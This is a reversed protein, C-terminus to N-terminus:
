RASRPNPWRGRDESNPRHSRSYGGSNLFSPYRHADIESIVDILIGNHGLGKQRLIGLFGGQPGLGERLVDALLPGPLLEGDEDLGGLAPVFGQIVDQEVPGGTKSLRGQGPDNGLLHPRADTDGGTGGNLLGPIERGQERVEVLPIDKKHVLDVPQVTGHLFNQVGGHLVVGQVDDHPLPGTGVGDAQIQGVKGEDPGGGPRALEGRRQPVAEAHRQPQLEVGWLLEGSDDGARRPDKVHVNHGVSGILDGTPAPAGGADCVPHEPPDPIVGLHLCVADDRRLHGVLGKAGQLDVVQTQVGHVPPHKGGDHIM